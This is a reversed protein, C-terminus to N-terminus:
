EDKREPATWAFRKPPEFRASFKAWGTPAGKPPESVNIDFRLVSGTKLHNVFSILKLWDDKSHAHGGDRYSLAQRGYAGLFAFVEEAARWSIQTGYPNAWTDDLGDTTILARPAILARVFHLDFPLLWEDGTKGVYDLQSPANKKPGKVAGPSHLGYNWFEDNFWYGINEGMVGMTECYGDGEGFRSGLFRFCGAGGCGSCSPACVAFREDYAAAYLAVKGGRSHGSAILWDPEAFDTTLLWDAVRSMTWGWAAIEGWDCDPYEKFLQGERCAYSDPALQEKEFEIYAIDNEILEQEAPSGFCGKFQNVVVVPFRGPKNPRILDCNFSVSGFSIRVIESIAKGGYVPRSLVVEGKVDKPPEPAHGYMYHALMQKIYTRQEYWEKTTSVREGDPKLFPDPLEYVPKLRSKPLFSYDNM